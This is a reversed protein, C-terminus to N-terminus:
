FNSISRNLSLCFEPLVQQTLAVTSQESIRQLGLKMPSIGEPPRPYEQKQNEKRKSEERQRKKKLKSQHLYEAYKEHIMAAHETPM